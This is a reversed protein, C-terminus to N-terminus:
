VRFFDTSNSAGGQGSIFCALLYNVSARIRAFTQLFGWRLAHWPLSSLLSSNPAPTCTCAFPHLPSSLSLALATAFRYSIRACAFLKVRRFALSIPPALRSTRGRPEEEGDYMPRAGPCTRGRARVM